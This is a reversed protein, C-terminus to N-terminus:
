PSEGAATLVIQKVAESVFFGAKSELEALIPRLLAVKGAKKGMLLVGLLGVVKHGRAEAVSRGRKEDMLVYDAHCEAALVIAEAEGRDLDKGLEDASQRDHIERTEVYDPLSPHFRLLEDRVAPPVLVRGFLVRLLEGEGVQLLATVPSTDSVVLM